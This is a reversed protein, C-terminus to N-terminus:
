RAARKPHVVRTILDRGSVETAGAARARDIAGDFLDYHETETGTNQRWGLRLGISRAFTDLEATGASGILDSMLHSTLKFRRFGASRPTDFLIM